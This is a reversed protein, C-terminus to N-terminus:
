FALLNSAGSPPNRGSATPSLQGCDVLEAEPVLAPGALDISKMAPPRRYQRLDAVPITVVLDIKLAGGFTAKGDIAVGVTKLGGFNTKEFVLFNLFSVQKGANSVLCEWGVGMRM